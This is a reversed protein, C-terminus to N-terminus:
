FSKFLSLQEFCTFDRNTLLDVLQKNKSVYLYNQPPTIGIKRLTTLEISPKIEFIRKIPYAYNRHMSCSNFRDTGYSNYPITEGMRYPHDLFLVYKLESIPKSEYVYFLNPYSVNWYKNRYELTKRGDLIM